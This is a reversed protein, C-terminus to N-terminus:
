TASKRMSGILFGVLGFVIAPVIWGIGEKHLPLYGLVDAVPDIPLGFAKLMDFFGVIGAAALAFLYVEQYGNFRDHFFSVTILVIALPYIGFLVPLTFSILQTLGINAVFMSFVCVVIVVLRYSLKPFITSFFSACSSVLGVSTTLCALFVAAGLLVQGTTGMLSYALQTLIVGGNEANPAVLRSTTGLYALGVYVLCLGVAAIGGSKMTIAAIAKRDSIGRGKIANIVIIGFVLAAIADMTLYGQIFGNIFPHDIYPEQPPGSKGAPKIVGIAVILAVIALLVPTLVNGFRDVLKNPKLSLWATIAFFLISFLILGTRELPESIFPSLGMEFSVTATRPVAFFPGLALYVIITFVLGFLPHAKGALDRLQSGSLAVAMVGLFPLGVGTILFGAITIWVNEGALQGVLPPFIMNGAGFFLAFMLLGLKFTDKKSFDDM